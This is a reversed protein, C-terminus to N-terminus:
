HNGPVQPNHTLVVEINEGSDGQMTILVPPAAVDYGWIDHPIIQKYWALEGSDTELAVM